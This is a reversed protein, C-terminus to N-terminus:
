QNRISMEENVNMQAMSKWSVDSGASSDLDEQFVCASSGIELIEVFIQITCLLFCVDCIIYMYVCLSWVTEGWFSLPFDEGRVLVLCHLDLVSSCCCLGELIGFVFLYAELSLRSCWCNWANETHKRKTKLFFIHKKCREDLNRYWTWEFFSTQPCRFRILNQHQQAALLPQLQALAAHLAVRLLKVVM